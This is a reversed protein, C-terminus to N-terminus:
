VRFNKALYGGSLDLGHLIAFDAEAREPEIEAPALQPTVVRWNPKATARHANQAFEDGCFPLNDGLIRQDLADPGAYDDFVVGDLDM